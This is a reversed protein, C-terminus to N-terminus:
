TQDMRVVHSVPPACSACFRGLMVPGQEVGDQGRWAIMVLLAAKGQCPRSVGQRTIDRGECYWAWFLELSEHSVRIMTQMTQMTQM